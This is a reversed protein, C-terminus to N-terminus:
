FLALSSSLRIMSDHSHEIELHNDSTFINTVKDSCFRTRVLNKTVIGM